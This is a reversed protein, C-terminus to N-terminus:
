NSNSNAGTGDILREMGQRTSADYGQKTPTDSQKPTPSNLRQLDITGGSNGVSTSGTDSSGDGGIARASIHDPVISRLLAAGPKILQMTRASQVVVPQEAPPMILELGIYAVCVLVAGRALGFLFGLSRDLVNLASSQVQKAVARTLLSLFVLTVIFIVIGATLDAAIELPIYKRAFPKAYPFGYFTAFIAGIWGGVSLVEHVFGRAYALVASILLVALVGIDVVNVPFDSLSDM